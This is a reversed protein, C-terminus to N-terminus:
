GEPLGPYMAHAGPGKRQNSPPSGAAFKGETLLPGIKFFAKQIVPNDGAGTLALAERLGSVGLQDLVKAITAKAESNLPSKPDGSGIDKDSSTQKAWEAKTDTWIKQNHDALQKMGDAYM